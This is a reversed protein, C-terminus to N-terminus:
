PQWGLTEYIGLIQHHLNSKLEKPKATSALAISIANSLGEISESDATSMSQESFGGINFAATPVGLEAAIVLPGSGSGLAHSAIVVDSAAIAAVFTPLDMYGPFRPVTVNLKRQTDLFLHEGDSTPGVVVPTVGARLCAAIFIDPRKDKRLQGALLGVPRTGFHHRWEAIKEPAPTPFALVLPLIVSTGGWRRFIDLDSRVTAVVLDTGRVMSKLIRLHRKKGSRAFSNHPTFVIFNSRLARIMVRTLSNGFLGQVHALDQRRVRLRLHPLTRFLFNFATLPQRVGSPFNRVWKMCLCFPIDSFVPEHDHATHVLVSVGARQLAEALAITHQFVGGQGGVEILNVTKASNREKARVLDKRM